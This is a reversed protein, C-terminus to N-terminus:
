LENVINYSMCEGPGSASIICASATIYTVKSFFLCGCFPTYWIESLIQKIGQQMSSFTPFRNGGAVAYWEVGGWCAPSLLLCTPWASFLHCKQSAAMKRDPDFHLPQTKQAGGPTKWWCSKLDWLPIIWPSAIIVLHTNHVCLWKVRTPYNRHFCQSFAVRSGWLWPDWRLCQM